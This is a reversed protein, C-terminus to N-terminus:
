KKRKSPSSSKNYGTKARRAASPASKGKSPSRKGRTLFNRAEEEHGHTELWQIAREHLDQLTPSGAIMMWMAFDPDSPQGPSWQKEAILFAQVQQVDLTRLVADLRQRFNAYDTMSGGMEGNKTSFAQSDQM